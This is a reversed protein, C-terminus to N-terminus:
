SAPPSPEPLDLPCLFSARRSTWVGFLILATVLFATEEGFQTLLLMLENLVPVRLQEFVYLIEM